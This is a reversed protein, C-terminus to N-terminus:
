SSHGETWWVATGMGYPARDGPGGSRSNRIVEGVLGGGDTKEMATAVLGASMGVSLRRGGRHGESQRRALGDAIKM